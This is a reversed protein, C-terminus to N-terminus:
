IWSRQLGFAGVGEAFKEVGGSDLFSVADGGVTVEALLRAQEVEDRPIEAIFGM